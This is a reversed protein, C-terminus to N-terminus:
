LVPNTGSWNIIWLNEKENSSYKIKIYLLGERYVVDIGDYGSIPLSDHKQISDSAYSGGAYNFRLLSCTGDTFDSCFIVFIKETDPLLEIEPTIYVTCSLFKVVEHWVV